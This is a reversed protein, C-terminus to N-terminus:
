RRTELAIDIPDSSGSAALPTRLDGPVIDVTVLRLLNEVAMVVAAAGHGELVSPLPLIHPALACPLLIRRLDLRVTELRHDVRLLLCFPNLSVSQFM